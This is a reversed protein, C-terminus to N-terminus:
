TGPRDGSCRLIAAAAAEVDASTTSTDSVSIRMARRGKWTTPGVWCTGEMQVAEIVADTADDDGFAVLAQNLVVPALLEAGGESLLNAMQTARECTAAIMDAIGSRGRAAIVAWTEVGRARQSMQLGLHMPARDSDAPLYAADVAMAARLDGGRACIAVGSDYPANLWKHADTAWSDAGEVGAVLDRHQPSAAAWLGFAGDVHLWGEAEAVQPVLTAFPDSHGTNVNGAQAIVLTHPALAPMAASDLRGCDDTPVTTVQSRGIGIARLAKYVSVHIEESTVVRLPPAGALGDAEVDWGNRRLLADRAALLCTLNAVSAGACFAATASEPLHLLRCIWDVAISDLRASVPSMVPLAANQDWTSVLVSAATGAPETGGNVFGFYRGDTTRVTAPSGLDDLEALVDAPDRGHEPLADTFGALADVDSAEPFVSRGAGSEVYRVAREAAQIILESKPRAANM